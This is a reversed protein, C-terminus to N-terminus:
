AEFNIYRVFDEGMQSIHGDIIAAPCYPKGEEDVGRQTIGAKDMKQFTKKLIASTMSANPTAAFLTPIEKGYIEL